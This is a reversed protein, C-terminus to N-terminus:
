SAKGRRGRWAHDISFRGPGLITLLLGLCITLLNHHYPGPLDANAQFAFLQGAFAQAVVISLLILTILGAVISGAVGLVLMAGLVLELWPLAYGYPAALADPLWGPQMSSFSGRYFTGLSSVGDAVEGRAKGLGAFFFYLGLSLRSLLLTVHFLTHTPLATM